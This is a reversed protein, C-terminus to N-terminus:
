EVKVASSSYTFIFTKSGGASITGTGGASWGSSSATVRWTGPKLATKTVLPAPNVASPTVEYTKTESFSSRGSGESSGQLTGGIVISVYDTGDNPRPINRIEIMASGSKSSSNVKVDPYCGGCSKLIFYVPLLAILFVLVRYLFRKKKM